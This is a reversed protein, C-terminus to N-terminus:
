SGISDAVRGAIRTTLPDAVREALRAELQRITESQMRIMSDQEHLQVHTRELRDVAAVVQAEVASLREEAAVARREAAGVADRLQRVIESTGARQAARLREVEHELSSLAQAHEARLRTTVDHLAAVAEFRADREYFRAYTLELLACLPEAHELLKAGSRRRADYVAIVAALAGEIVVGKLLLRLEDVATPLGLLRAYQGGQDGIDAFRQGALIAYQATPPLHDLAMTAHAPANQAGLPADPPVLARNVLANRRADFHLLAVGTQKEWATLEDDILRLAAAADPALTLEAALAPLTKPAM